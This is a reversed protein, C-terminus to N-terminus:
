FNLWENFFKVKPLLPEVMISFRHADDDELHIISRDSYGAPYFHIEITGSNMRDRQPFQVDVIRIAGPLKFAKEAATTLTQEDMSEDIVWLKSNDMDIVLSQLKQHQIAQSRLFRTTSIMWRSIKKIPDELIGSEFRPIAVALLISILLMVVILEILTFGNGKKNM